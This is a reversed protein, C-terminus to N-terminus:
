RTAGGNRLVASNPGVSSASSPSWARVGPGFKSHHAAAPHCLGDAAAFLSGLLVGSSPLRGLTSREASEHGDRPQALLTADQHSYADGDACRAFLLPLLLLIASREAERDGDGPGVPGPNQRADRGRM